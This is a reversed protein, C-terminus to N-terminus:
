PYHIRKSSPYATVLIPKLAQCISDLRANFLTRAVLRDIMVSAFTYILYRFYLFRSKIWVKLFKVIFYWVLRTMEVAASNKM